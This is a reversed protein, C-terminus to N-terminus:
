NVWGRSLPLPTQIGFSQPAIPCHGFSAFRAQASASRPSWSLWICSLFKCSSAPYPIRYSHFFTCTHERCPLAFSFPVWSCARCSLAICSNGYFLAIGTRGASRSCECCYRNPHVESCFSRGSIRSADLARWGSRSCLTACAGWRGASRWDLKVASIIWSLSYPDWGM